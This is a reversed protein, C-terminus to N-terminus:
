LLDMFPNEIVKGKLRFCVLGMTVPFCVEFRPDASLMEEFEHAQKVHKRIYERIGTQGYLRMVFWM